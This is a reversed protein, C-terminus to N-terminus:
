AGGRPWSTEFVYELGDIEDMQEGIKEYGFTTALRLSPENNPDISALFRTVGHTRHAWDFLAQIAERAYGQRRYEPEVRYGVEARGAADPPGHFGISGIIRRDGNAGTLVMVRGLWERIDPNAELQRLRFVVFNKLDDPMDVPVSANMEKEAAAIDHRALAQMFPVTMSELTMRPTRIPEVTETSDARRPM